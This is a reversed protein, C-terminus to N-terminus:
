SRPPASTIPSEGGIRHRLVHTGLSEPAGPRHMGPEKPSFFPRVLHAGPLTRITSSPRHEVAPDCALKQRFCLARPRFHDPRTVVPLKSRDLPAPEESLNSRWPEATSVSTVRWAIPQCRCAARSRGASPRNSAASLSNARSFAMLQVVVTSSARAASTLRQLRVRGLAPPTRRQEGVRVLLDVGQVLRQPRHPPLPALETLVMAELRLVPNCGERDAVPHLEGVSKFAARM